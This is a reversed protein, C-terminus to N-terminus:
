NKNENNNQPQEASTYKQWQEVMGDITVIERLLEKIESLKENVDKNSNIAVQLKEETKMRDLGLDAIVLQLIRM